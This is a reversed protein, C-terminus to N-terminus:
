DWDRGQRRAKKESKMRKQAVRHEGVWVPEESEKRELPIEAARRLLAMLRRKAEARNGGQTRSTESVIVLEGDNNIRNGAQEQLRGRVPEPIWTAGQVSFRLEAKTNLKNVNQGGKGSSRSFRWELASDPITANWPTEVTKKGEEESSPPPASSVSLSRVPLAASLAPKQPLRSFCYSHYAPNGMTRKCASQLVLPAAAACRSRLAAM